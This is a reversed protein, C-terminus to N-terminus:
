LYFAMFLKRIIEFLILLIIWIKFIFIKDKNSIIENSMNYNAIIVKLIKYAVNKIIAIIKWLIFYVYKILKNIIIM